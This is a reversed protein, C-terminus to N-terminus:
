GGPVPVTFGHLDQQEIRVERLGDGVGNQAGRLSRGPRAGLQLGDGASEARLHDARTGFVRQGRVAHELLHGFMRGTAVRHHQRHREVGAQPGAPFQEVDRHDAHGFGTHERGRHQCRAERHQGVARPQDRDVALQHFAIAHAGAQGGDARDIHGRRLGEALGFPHEGLHPSPRQRQHLLAGFGDHEAARRHGRHRRLQLGLHRHGQEVADGAADAQGFGRTCWRQGLGRTPLTLGVPPRRTRPTLGASCASNALGAHARRQVLVGRSIQRLADLAALERGRATASCKM